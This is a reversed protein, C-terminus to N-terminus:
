HKNTPIDLFNTEMLKLKGIPVEKIQIKRIEKMGQHLAQDKKEMIKLCKVFTKSIKPSSKKVPINNPM